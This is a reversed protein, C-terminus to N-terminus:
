PAGRCRGGPWRRGPRAGAAAPGRALDGPTAAASGWAWAARRDLDRWQRGCTRAAAAFPRSNRDARRANSGGRMTKTRLTASPRVVLRTPVAPSQAAIAVASAPQRIYIPNAVEEKPSNSTFVRTTHVPLRRRQTGYTGSASGLGREGSWDRSFKPGTLNRFIKCFKELNKTVDFRQYM